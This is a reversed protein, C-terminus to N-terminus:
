NEVESYNSYDNEKKVNNIKNDTSEIKTNSKKPTYKGRDMMNIGWLLFLFFIIIAVVQAYINYFVTPPAIPNLKTNDTNEFVKFSELIDDSSSNPGGVELIYSKLYSKVFIEGLGISETDGTEIYRINEPTIKLRNAIDEVTIGRKEREKKLFIGLREQDTKGRNEKLIDKLEEKM